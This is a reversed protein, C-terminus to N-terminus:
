EWWSWALGTLMNDGEVTVVWCSHMTLSSILAVESFPTQLLRRDATISATTEDGGSLLVQPYENLSVASNASPRRGCQRGHTEATPM